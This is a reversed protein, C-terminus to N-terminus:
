SWRRSSSPPSTRVVAAPIGRQAAAPWTPIFRTVVGRVADAAPSGELADHVSMGAGMAAQLSPDDPVAGAVDIARGLFHTCAGVLFECAESALSENHRNALISMIAHPRRMNVTKVVAYNAALALRDASTVLLLAPDNLETIATITDLRSGGDFVILDYRSYIQALRTLATRRQHDNQPTSVENSMGGAVLSLNDGLDTVLQEPRVRSDMLMWLTQETRVGFMYHLAGATESADILLM